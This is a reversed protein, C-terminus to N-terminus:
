PGDARCSHGHGSTHLEPMFILDVVMHRLNFNADFFHSTLGLYPNRRLDAWGDYTVAMSEVQGSGFLAAERAAIAREMAPIVTALLRYKTLGTDQDVNLASIFLQHSESELSEFSHGHQLVSLGQHIWSTIKRRERALAHGQLLQAVNENSNGCMRVKRKEDAVAQEVEGNEKARQLQATFDPHHRQLHRLHKDTGSKGQKFKEQGPAAHRHGGRNKGEDNTRVPISV